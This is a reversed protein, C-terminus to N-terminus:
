EKNILLRVHSLDLSHHVAYQYLLKPWESPSRNDHIQQLNDLYNLLVDNKDTVGYADQLKKIATQDPTGNMDDLPVDSLGLIGRVTHFEFSPHYLNEEILNEGIACGIVGFRPDEMRYLCAGDQAARGRGTAVSDCFDDFIKQLTVKKETM